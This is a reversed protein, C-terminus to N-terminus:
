IQNMRSIIEKFDYIFVLVPIAYQSPVLFLTMVMLAIHENDSAFMAFFAGIMQFLTSRRIVLKLNAATAIYKWLGL